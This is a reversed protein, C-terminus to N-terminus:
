KRFEFRLYKFYHESLPLTRKLFAEVTECDSDSFNHILDAQGLFWDFEVKVESFGISKALSIIENRDFGKLSSKGPESIYMVEKSLGKENSFNDGDRLALIERAVPAEVTKEDLDKITDIYAWFRRNPNLDAYFVGDNKLVRYVETLVDKLSFVHDLFSYATVMDFSNSDHGTSEAERIDITINGSSLDIKETMAKTIDVGYIHDFIDKTLNIIFGTGCGIDLLSKRSSLTSSLREIHSRVKRINESRWHSDNNYVDSISAHVEINAKLVEERTLKREM